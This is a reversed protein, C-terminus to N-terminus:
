LEPEWRKNKPSTKTTEQSQRQKNENLRKHISGKHETSKQPLKKEQDELKRELVTLEKTTEDYTQRFDEESEYGQTKPYIEYDDLAKQYKMNLVELESAADTKKKSSVFWKGKITDYEEKKTKVAKVYHNVNRKRRQLEEQISDLKIKKLQLETVKTRLDPEKEKEAAAETKQNRRMRMISMSLYGEVLSKMANIAQTMILMFLSRTRGKEPAKSLPQIFLKKKLGVAEEMPM